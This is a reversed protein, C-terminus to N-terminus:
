MGNPRIGWLCLGLILRPTGLLRTWSLPHKGAYAGTNWMTQCRGTPSLPRFHYQQGEPNSTPHPTVLARQPM